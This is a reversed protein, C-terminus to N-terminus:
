WTVPPKLGNWFSRCHGWPRLLGRVNEIVAYRPRITAILDIYRLFLQGCPDALGLRKGAVSFSQCPPGGIMVYVEGPKIRLESMIRDPTLDLLLEKHSALYEKSWLQIRLIKKASQSWPLLSSLHNGEHGPGDCERRGSVDGPSASQRARSEV